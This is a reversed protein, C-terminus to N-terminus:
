RVASIAALYPPLAQAEAWSSSSSGAMSPTDTQTALWAWASSAMAARRAPLCTSHSFGMATVRASHSAMSASASLAPLRSSMPWFWRSALAWTLALSSTAAPSIPRTTVKRVVKPWPPGSVQDM